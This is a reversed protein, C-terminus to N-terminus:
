RFTGPSFEYTLPNVGVEDEPAWFALQEMWPEARLRKGGLALFGAARSVVAGMWM